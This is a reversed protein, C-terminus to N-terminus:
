ECGKPEKAREQGAQTKEAPGEGGGTMASIQGLYTALHGAM